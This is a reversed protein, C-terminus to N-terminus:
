FAFSWFSGINPKIIWGITLVTSYTYNQPNLGDYQARGHIIRRLLCRNLKNDRWCAEPRQSAHHFPFHIACLPTLGDSQWGVPTVYIAKLMPILLTLNHNFVNNCEFNAVGPALM